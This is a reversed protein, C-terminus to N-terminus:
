ITNRFSHHSVPWPGTLPSCTVLGSKTSGEDEREMGLPSDNRASLQYSIYSIKPGQSKVWHLTFIEGDAEVTERLQGALSCSHHYCHLRKLRLAIWRTASPYRIHSRSDRKGHYHWRTIIFAAIVQCLSSTLKTRKLDCLVFM